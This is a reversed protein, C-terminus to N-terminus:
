LFAHSAAAPRAMLLATLCMASWHRPSMNGEKSHSGRKRYRGISSVAGRRSSSSKCGLRRTPCSSLSTM